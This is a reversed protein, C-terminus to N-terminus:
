GIRYRIIPLAQKTLSTFLLEVVLQVQRPTM